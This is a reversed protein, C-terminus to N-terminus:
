PILHFLKVDGNLVIKTGESLSLRVVLATLSLSHPYATQNAGKSDM